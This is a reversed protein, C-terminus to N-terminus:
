HGLHWEDVALRIDLDERRLRLRAPLNLAEDYALYDIRWGSQRLESYRGKTQEGEFPVGALPRGRIWQPLGVLPLRWGLAEETLSEPDAASYERGDATRLNYKQQIRNLQAVGQGLPNSIILEDSEAQHRWAVHGTASDKGYRVAVRAQVEFDDSALPPHESSLSACGNL